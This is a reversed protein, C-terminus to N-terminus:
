RTQAIIAQRPAPNIPYARLGVTPAAVAATFFAFAMFGFMGVHLLSAILCKPAWTLLVICAAILCRPLTIRARTPLALVALTLAIDFTISACLILTYDLAYPWM